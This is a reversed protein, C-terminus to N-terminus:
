VAQQLAQDPNTVSMPSLFLSYNSIKAIINIIRIFKIIFKIIINISYIFRNIINIIINIIIDCYNVLLISPFSQNYRRPLEVHRQM